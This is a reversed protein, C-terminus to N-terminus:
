ANIKDAFAVAEKWKEQKMLLYGKNILAERNTADYFLSKEYCLLSEDSHGMHFLANGLKNWVSINEPEYRLVQKYLQAAKIYNNVQYYLDAKELIIVRDDSSLNLAHNLARLAEKPRGLKKLAVAKKLWIRLCDEVVEKKNVRKIRENPPKKSRRKQRNPKTEAVKPVELSVSSTVSESIVNESDDSVSIEDKKSKCFPCESADQKMFAGCKDCLFLVGPSSLKAEAQPKEKQDDSILSKIDSIKEGCIGCDAADPKVFAGCNQCLFLSGESHLINEAMSDAPIEYEEEEELEDEYEYELNELNMGCVECESANESLFAGCNDCLFIEPSGATQSLVDDKASIEIEATLPTRKAGCANCHKADVGIFAGCNQCIFLSSDIALTELQDIKSEFTNEMLSIQCNPCSSVIDDIMDGCHPCLCIDVFTDKPDLKGVM